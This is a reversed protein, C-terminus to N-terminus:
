EDEEGQTIQTEEDTLFLISLNLIARSLGEKIEEEKPHVSFIRYTNCLNLLPEHKEPIKNGYAEKNYLYETILQGLTMKKLKNEEKPNINCMIKLLRSEVACVSMAVCSRHCRELYDHIAENIRNTETEDLLSQLRKIEEKANCFVYKIDMVVTKFTNRLLANGELRYVKEKLFDKNIGIIDINFFNSVDIGHKIPDLLQRFIPTYFYSEDSASESQESSFFRKIIEGEFENCLTEVNQMDLLYARM